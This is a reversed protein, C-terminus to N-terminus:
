CCAATVVADAIAVRSDGVRQRMEVTRAMAWRDEAEDRM